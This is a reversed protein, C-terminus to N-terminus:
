LAVPQKQAGEGFRALLMAQGSAALKDMRSARELAVWKVSNDSNFGGFFLGTIKHKIGYANMKSGKPTTSDIFNM